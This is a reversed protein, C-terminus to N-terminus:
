PLSLSPVFSRNICINVNYMCQKNTVTTTSTTHTERGENGKRERKRRKKRRKEGGGGWGRCMKEGETEGKRQTGQRRGRGKVRKGTM